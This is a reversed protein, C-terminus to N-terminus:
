KTRQKLENTYTTLAERVKLKIDETIEVDSISKVAIEIVRQIEDIITSKPPEVTTDDETEKKECLIGLFQAFVKANEETLVCTSFVGNSEALKFILGGDKPLEIAITAGQKGRFKM